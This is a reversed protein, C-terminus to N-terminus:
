RPPDRKFKCMDKTVPCWPCLPNDDPPWDNNDIRFRISKTWGVVQPWLDTLQYTVGPRNQKLWFYFGNVATIDPRHIKLLLAQLRLELPDEWPKGTKWDVIVALPPRIVCLDIRVRLRCRDDFFGCPNGHGDCGLGLEVDKDGDSEEIQKCVTDLHEYGPPLPERLKLRKKIVEHENIGHSQQFSKQEKPCDKAIWRHNFKKPCTLYDNIQLFSLVVPIDALPEL